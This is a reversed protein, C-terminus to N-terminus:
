WGPSAAPSPPQVGPANDMAVDPEPSTALVLEAGGVLDDWTIVEIRSLHSNYARICQAAVGQLDLSLYRPDGIVVTAFARQCDISLGRSIADSRRDLDRLVSMAEAVADHVEPGVAYHSSRRVVLAPVNAARLKVVHLVNDYRRVPLDLGDLGPITMRLEAAVYRGGLTWWEHLLVRHLDEARSEPDAVVDKLEALGKVQRAYEILNSLQGAIALDGLAKVAQPNKAVATVVSRLTDDDAGSLGHILPGFTGKKASAQSNRSQAAGQSILERLRVIEDLEASWASGGYPVPRATVPADPGSGAGPSRGPASDIALPQEAPGAGSKLRQRLLMVRGSEM